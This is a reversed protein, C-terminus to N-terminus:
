DSNKNQRIEFNKLYQKIIDPGYSLNKRNKLIELFIKNNDSIKYLEEKKTFHTLSVASELKNLLEIDVYYKESIKTVNIHFKDQDYSGVDERRIRIGDPTLFSLVEEEDNYMDFHIRKITKEGHNDVTLEVVNSYSKM